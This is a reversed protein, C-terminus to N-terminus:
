SDFSVPSVTSMATSPFSLATTTSWICPVNGNSATEPSPDDRGACAEELPLAKSAASGGACRARKFFVRRRVATVRFEMVFQLARSRSSSETRRVPKAISSSSYAIPIHATATRDAPRFILYNRDRNRNGCFTELSSLLAHDLHEDLSRLGKLAAKSAM